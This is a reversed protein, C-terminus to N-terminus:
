YWRKHNKSGTLDLEKTNSLVSSNSLRVILDDDIDSKYQNIIQYLNLHLKLKPKDCQMKLLKNVDELDIDEANTLDLKKMNKCYHSECLQGLLQKNMFNAFETFISDPNFFNLFIQILFINWVKNM